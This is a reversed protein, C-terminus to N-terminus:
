GLQQKRSSRAIKSEAHARNHILEGHVRDAQAPAHTKSALQARAPIMSSSPPRDSQRCSAAVQDSNEDRVIM